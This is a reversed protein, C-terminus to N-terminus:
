KLRRLHRGRRRPPSACSSPPRQGVVQRLDSLSRHPTLYDLSGLEVEGLIRGYNAPLDRELTVPRPTGPDVVVLDGPQIGLDPVARQARFVFPEM